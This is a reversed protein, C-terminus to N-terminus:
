NPLGTIKANSTLFSLSNVKEGQTKLFRQGLLKSVVSHEQIPYPHLINAAIKRM